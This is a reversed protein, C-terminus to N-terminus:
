RISVAWPQPWRDSSNKRKTTSSISPRPRASIARSQAFDRIDSSTDSVGQLGCQHSILDDMQDATLKDLRMLYVLLGPDLDGPRTGMMLGATPTFAMTTDIPKRNHVAAMSAGSGLHALIVRGNAADEGAVEALRTMLYTYSLGHFGFRRVGADLYRRPIPLLRAVTPMERHFATDFCVVQPLSPFAKGFVEILLIETPLHALDLTQIKRLEEILEPAVLQPEFLNAGGHVIRHGIGKISTPGVREHLYEILTKTARDFNSADVARVEEREEDKWKAILQTGPGGIRQIEGCLRRELAPTLEFVAFKISSSGGNVTLVLPQGAHGAINDARNSM